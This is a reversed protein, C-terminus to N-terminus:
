NTLNGLESLADTGDPRHSKTSLNQPRALIAVMECVHKFANEQTLFQRIKTCIKCFNNKLIWGLFMPLYLPKVGFLHCANIQMLWQRAYDCVFTHGQSVLVLQPCNLYSFAFITRPRSCYLCVTNPTTMTGGPQGSNVCQPLSLIAAM